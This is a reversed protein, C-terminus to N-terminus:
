GACQKFLLKMGYLACPIMRMAIGGVKVGVGAPGAALMAAFKIIFAAVIDKLKDELYKKLWKEMSAKFVESLITPLCKGTFLKVIFKGPNLPGDFMMVIDECCAEVSFKVIGGCITQMWKPRVDPPKEVGMVHEVFEDNWFSDRAALAESCDYDGIGCIARLIGDGM